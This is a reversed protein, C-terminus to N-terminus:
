ARRSWSLVARDLARVLGGGADLVRHTYRGSATSPRMFMNIVTEGTGSPLLMPVAPTRNWGILCFQFQEAANNASVAACRLCQVTNAIRAVRKATFPRKNGVANALSTICDSGDTQGDTRKNGNQKSGISRQGQVKAHSYTM